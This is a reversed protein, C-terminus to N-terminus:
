GAGLSGPICDDIQTAREGPQRNLHPEREDQAVVEVKRKVLDAAHQAHALGGRLSTDVAPERAQAYVNRSVSGIRSSWNRSCSRSARPSGGTRRDGASRGGCRLRLTLPAIASSAAATATTSITTSIADRM